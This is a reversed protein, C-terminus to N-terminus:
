LYTIFWIGLDILLYFICLDTLLIFIFFHIPENYTNCIFGQSIISKVSFVFYECFIRIYKETLLLKIM